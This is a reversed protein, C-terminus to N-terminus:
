VSGIYTMKPQDASTCGQMTTWQLIDSILKELVGCTKNTKSPHNTCQSALPQIAETKYSTAELIQKFYSAANKHVEWRAKERHTKNADMHHMQVTISVCGCSPLFGM